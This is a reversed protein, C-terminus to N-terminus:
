ARVNGAPVEIQQRGNAEHVLREYLHQLDSGIASWGYTTVALERAAAGATRRLEADAFLANVRAAFRAADNEIFINKEHTVGIGECGISTSVIAKGQALADLVKLRTGGGVRLPVVYVAAKRVYPRVDDVFGTVIVSSDHKAFDHLERPPDQGIAYFKAGPYKQLVMPWIERLFYLVADKNAYMNMGGTYIASLDHGETAATFYTTDVGNPVIATAAGPAIQLLSAQDNTSMLINADFLPSQEAEYARLRNAQQTVYYKRLVNAEVEARRAMLQSEINHHTLVAPRGQSLLRYPALGITDVHMLDVQQTRVIERVAEKYSLSRHALVSFPKQYLLGAGFAALKHVVSRKPWLPFYQVSACHKKLEHESEEIREPTGLIDTHLFALLHVENYKGIERILNYGRQLVGGHPPYPVIQSLFLIKM